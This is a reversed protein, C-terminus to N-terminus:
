EYEKLFCTFTTGANPTSKVDIRGGNKQVINSVLHLGIGKGEALTTLRSFPLFLKHGQNPLDIGIGNDQFCLVAFGDERWAKVTIVLPRSDARYKLANGLLNRFISALYSRIYTLEPLGTFDAELIADAPIETTLERTVETYVDNLQLMHVVVQFTSQVELVEVLDTITSELQKLSIQMHELLMQSEEDHPLDQLLNTLVGLNGVPSRLDHAVTYVFNELHGNVRTLQEHQRALQQRSRILEAKAQRQATIDRAVSLLAVVQGDPALEPLVEVQCYRVTEDPGPLQAEVCTPAGTFRVHQLTEQWATTTVPGLIDPLTKGLLAAPEGLLQEFSRNAFTIQLGLDYRAIAEPLIDLLTSCTNEMFM